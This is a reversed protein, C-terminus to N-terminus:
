QARPMEAVISANAQRSHLISSTAIYSPERVSHALSSDRGVSVPGYVWRRGGFRRALGEEGLEVRTPSSYSRDGCRARFARYAAGSLKLSCRM